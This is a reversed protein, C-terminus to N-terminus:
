RGRYAAFNAQMWDAVLRQLRERDRKLFFTHDCDEWFALSVNGAKAAPGLCSALQGPHNFYDYAGGTFLFLTRVDRATLDSMMKRAQSKSPFDRYDDMGASDSSARKLVRRLKSPNFIRPLLYRWWYGPTRYALGEPLVFGAIPPDDPAHFAEDAGACIGGLVFRDAGTQASLLELAARLESVRREATSVTCPASDGLGAHDMRLVPFGLGSLLRALQTYGRFPGARQVLGANFLVLGTRRAQGRPHSVVGVLGEGFHHVTEGAANAPVQLPILVASM